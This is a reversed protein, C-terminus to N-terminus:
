RLGANWDNIKRTRTWSCELFPSCAWLTSLRCTSWSLVTNLPSSIILPRDTQVGSIHFDLRKKMIM